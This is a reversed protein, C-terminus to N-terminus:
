RRQEARRYESVAHNHEALTRSFRHGGQEGRVFYLYESAVPAMAAELSARGPNAIPGPPLGKHAYTNYPSDYNLDSQYIAGRYRGALLAAYVVTPDCQLPLGSGLRNYFVGAVLPREAALATEQEVLSAMTVIERVPRWPAHKRQLERYISRFRAVMAAAMRAASTRRSFRYTDPFLFGELSTASPDLDAILSTDRVAERMDDKSVLGSSAVAEAVEFMNYGEPITITHYYVEGRRLKKAVEQPSMARDFYYEGAKLTRGSGLFHLLLFPWESRLVGASRLRAAISRSSTGSEIEVLVPKQWGRFRTNTEHAVYAVGLLWTVLALLFILRAKM